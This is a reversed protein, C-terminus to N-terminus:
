VNAVEILGFQGDRRKYVVNIQETDTNPFVFFNHGLLEMQLIAEETNMPKLEFKKTRVINFEVEQKYGLFKHQKDRRNGNRKRDKYKSFQRELKEAVLDIATYMNEASEEARFIMGSVPVTVEVTHLGRLVRMTVRCIDATSATHYKDLHSLKDMAYNRLAETIELHDGRVTYNM